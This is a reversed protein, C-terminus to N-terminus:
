VRKDTEKWQRCRWFCNRLFECLCSSVRCIAPFYRWYSYWVVSVMGIM